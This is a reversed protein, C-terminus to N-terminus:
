ETEKIEESEESDCIDVKLCPYIYENYEYYDIENNIFKIDTESLEIEGHFTSVFPKAGVKKFEEWLKNSIACDEWDGIECNNIFLENGFLRDLTKIIFKIIKNKGLPSTFYFEERDGNNDRYSPHWDYTDNGYVWISNKKFKAIHFSFGGVLYFLTPRNHFGSGKYLTSHCVCYMTSTTGNNIARVFAVVAEQLLKEPVKMGKGSGKLYHNLWKLPLHYEKYIVKTCIECLTIITIIAIRLLYLKILYM